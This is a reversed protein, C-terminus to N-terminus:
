LVGGEPGFVAIAVGALLAVWGTIADIRCVSSVRALGDDVFGTDDGAAGVRAFAQSARWSEFSQAIGVVVLMAGGFLGVVDTFPAEPALLVKAIRAAMLGGGLAMAVSAVQTAVRNM